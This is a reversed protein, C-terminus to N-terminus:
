TKMDESLSVQRLLHLRDLAFPIQSVMIRLSSEEVSVFWSLFFQIHFDGTVQELDIM